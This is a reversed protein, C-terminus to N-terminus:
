RALAPAPQKKIEVKKEPEAEKEMPVDKFLKAQLAEMAKQPDERKDLYVIHVETNEAKAKAAYYAVEGQRAADKISTAFDKVKTMVKKAHKCISGWLSNKKEKVTATALKKLTEVQCATARLVNALPTIPAGIKYVQAHAKSLETMAKSYENKTEQMAKSANKDSVFLKAIEDLGDRIGLIDQRMMDHQLLINNKGADILQKTELLAQIHAVSLAIMADIHASTLQETGKEKEEDIKKQVPDQIQAVTEQANALKEEVPSVTEKQVKALEDASKAVDKKVEEAVKAIVAVDDVTPKPPEATKEPTPTPPKETQPAPTEKQTEAKEQTAQKETNVKPAPASTKEVPKTEPAPAKPAQPHPTPANKTQSPPTTSLSNFDTSYAEDPIGDDDDGMYPMPGFDDDYINNPNPM